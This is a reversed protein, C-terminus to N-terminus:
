HVTHKGDGAVNGADAIIWHRHLQTRPKCRGEGPTPVALPVVSFVVSRRRTVDAAFNRTTPNNDHHRRRTKPRTPLSHQHWQLLCLLLVGNKIPALHLYHFQPQLTTNSSHLQLFQLCRQNQIHLSQVSEQAQFHYHRWYQCHSREM